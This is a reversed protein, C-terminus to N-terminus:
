LLSMTDSLVTRSLLRTPKKGGPVFWFGETAVLALGDGMDETSRVVGVWVAKKTAAVSDKNNSQVRDGPNFARATM